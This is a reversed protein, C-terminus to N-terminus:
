LTIVLPGHQFHPCNCLIVQYMALLSVSASKSKVLRLVKLRMVENTGSHGVSSESKCM